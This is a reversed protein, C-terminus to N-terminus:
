FDELRFEYCSEYEDDRHYMRQGCEPCFKDGFHGPFGCNESDCKPCYYEDVHLDKCRMPIQKEICSSAVELAEELDEALNHLSIALKIRKLAESYKM